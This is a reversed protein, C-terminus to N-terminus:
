ASTHTECKLRKRHNSVINEPGLVVRSVPRGSFRAKTILILYLDYPMHQQWGWTPVTDTGLIMPIQNYIWIRTCKGQAIASSTDGPGPVTSVCMTGMVSTSRRLTGWWRGCDVNGGWVGGKWFVTTLAAGPGAYLNTLSIHVKFYRVTLSPHGTPKWDTEPYGRLDEYDLTVMLRQHSVEVLRTNHGPRTRTLIHDLTHWKFLPNWKSGQRQAGLYWLLFEM